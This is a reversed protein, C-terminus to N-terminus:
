KTATLFDRFHTINRLYPWDRSSHDARKALGSRAFNHVKTAM